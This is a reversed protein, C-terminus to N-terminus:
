HSGTLSELHATLVAERDRDGALKAADLAARATAGDMEDSIFAYGSLVRVENSDVAFFGGDVAVKVEAGDVPKVRVVGPKLVALVPEHGALIGIEGETTAAILSSAEGSWVNRDVAVVSVNLSAM